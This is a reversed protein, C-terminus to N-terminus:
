LLRTICRNLCPYRIAVYQAPPLVFDSRRPSPAPRKVAAAAATSSAPPGVHEVWAQFGLGIGLRGSFSWDGLRRAFVFPRVFLMSIWAVIADM